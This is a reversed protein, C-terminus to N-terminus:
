GSTPVNEARHGTRYRHAKMRNGCTSMDCWRRQGPRSADVFLLSCQPHECERVATLLPGSLLDVADRAVAALGPEVSRTARLIVSRAAADLERVFDPRAAWANVVAVDARQPRDRTAPHVLRYVAERLERASILQASTVSTDVDVSLAVHIWRALDPPAPLREIGGRYRKGLTAAFDLCLRGCRFRFELEDDV